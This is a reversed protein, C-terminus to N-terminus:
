ICGGERRGREIMGFCPGSFNEPEKAFDILKILNWGRILFQLKVDQQGLDPPLEITIERATGKFLRGREFGDAPQFFDERINVSGISTRNGQLFDCIMYMQGFAFAAAKELPM